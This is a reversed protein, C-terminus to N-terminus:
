PKAPHPSGPEVSYIVDDNTLGHPKKQEFLNRARVIMVDYKDKNFAVVYPVGKKDANRHAFIAAQWQKKDTLDIM